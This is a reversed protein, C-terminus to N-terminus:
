ALPERPILDEIRGRIEDRIERVREVPNGEPDELPGDERRSGPVIPCAQACGMTVLMNAGRERGHTLKQPM